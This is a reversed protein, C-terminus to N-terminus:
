AKKSAELRKKKEAYAAQNFRDLAFVMWQEIQMCEPFFFGVLYSDSGQRVSLSFGIQVGDKNKYPVFNIGTKNAETSHFLKLERNNRLADLFGAAEMANFKLKVKKGDKFTGLKTSDNWGTQKVIELYVGASEGTSQLDFSCAHGTGKANPKYFPLLSM